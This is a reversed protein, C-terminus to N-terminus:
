LGRVAGSRGAGRRENRDLGAVLAVVDLSSVLGRVTKGDLVLVRHVSKDSMLACLEGLPTGPTVAHVEDSMWDGVTDRGLEVLDYGDKDLSVDDDGFAKIIGGGGEYRRVRDDMRQAEARARTRGHRWSASPAWLARLLPIAYILYVGVILLLLAAVPDGELATIVLSRVVVAGIAVIPVSIALRPWISWSM